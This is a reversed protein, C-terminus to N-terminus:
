AFFLRKTDIAPLFMAELFFGPVAAFLWEVFYQGFPSSFM